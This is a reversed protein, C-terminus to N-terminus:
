TKLSAAIVAAAFRARIEACYACRHPPMMMAALLLRGCYGCAADTKGIAGRIESLAKARIAPIIPSAECVAGHQKAHERDILPKDCWACQFGLGM